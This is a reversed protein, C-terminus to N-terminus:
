RERVLVVLRSHAGLDQRRHRGCVVSESADVLREDMTALRDLDM